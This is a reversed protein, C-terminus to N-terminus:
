RAPQGALKKALQILGLAEKSLPLTQLESDQIGLAWAFANYDKDKEANELSDYPTLLNHLLKDSNRSERGPSGSWRWGDMCKEAMWRMHECRSLHVLMAPAGGDSRCAWAARKVEHHLAALRNSERMRESLELWSEPLDKERTGYGSDKSKENQFYVSHCIKADRDIDLQLPDATGLGLTLLNVVDFDGAKKKMKKLHGSDTRGDLCAMVRHGPLDHRMWFREAAELTDIESGLAFVAFDPSASGNEPFVQSASEQHWRLDAVLGAAPFRDLFSRQDEVSVSTLTVAPKTDGSIQLIQIASRLLEHRRPGVAEILLHVGRQRLDSDTVAQCAMRLMLSHTARSLYSDLRTKSTLRDLYFAKWAWSEVGASLTCCPNMRIEVEGCIALNKEDKGTVAVVARAKGVGARQLVTSDLANGLVIEIGLNRLEGLEPNHEDMEVVVVGGQQSAHFARALVAGRQGAGCVVVHGKLAALKAASRFHGVLARGAASVVGLLTGLALWRSVEILLPTHPNEVIGSAMSFLQVAKYFATATGLEPEYQFFGATGLLLTLLSSSALLILGRDVKNPTM